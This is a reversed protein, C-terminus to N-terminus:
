DAMGAAFTGVKDNVSTTLTEASDGFQAVMGAIAIGLVVMAVMVIIQKM